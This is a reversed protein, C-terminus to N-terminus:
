TLAHDTYCFMFHFSVVKWVDSQSSASRSLFEFPFLEFGSFSFGWGWEEDSEIGLGNLVETEMSSYLTIIIQRM